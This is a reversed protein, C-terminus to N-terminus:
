RLKAPLARDLPNVTLPTATLYPSQRFMEDIASNIVDTTVGANLLGSAIGLWASRITRNTTDIEATPVLDVIITGRDFTNVDVVPFGITWAPTFFPNFVGWVPASWFTFWQFSVTANFNQTATAGVLVVFSPTVNRPDTVETYGRALFDARVRALITADFQRTPDIPTGTLPVLHAVTEPMAFTHLTTFDFTSDKVTTVIGTVIPTVINQDDDGCAALTLAGGLMGALPLLTLARRRVQPTIM